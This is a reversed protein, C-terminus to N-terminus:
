EEDQAQELYRALLVTGLFGLVATVLAIDLLPPADHRIAILAVLGVAHLAILDFAVTRNPVDPGITLRVFSLAFSLTLLVLLVGIGIAFPSM